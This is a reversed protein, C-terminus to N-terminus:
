RGTFFSIVKEILSKSPKAAFVKMGNRQHSPLNRPGASVKTSVTEKTSETRPIPNPEEIGEVTITESLHRLREVEDYYEEKQRQSPERDGKKKTILASAAGSTINPPYSIRLCNMLAKQEISAPLIRWNKESWDSIISMAKWNSCRAPLHIGYQKAFATNEANVPGNRIRWYKYSSWYGVLREYEVKNCSSCVVSGNTLSVSWKKKQCEPCQMSSRSKFNQTVWEVAPLVEPPEDTFDFNPMGYERMAISCAECLFLGDSELVASEGCNASCRECNRKAM